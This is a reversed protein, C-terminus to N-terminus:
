RSEIDDVRRECRTQQRIGHSLVKAPDGKPQAEGHSHSRAYQIERDREGGYKRVPGNDGAGFGILRRGSASGIARLDRFFIVVVETFISM